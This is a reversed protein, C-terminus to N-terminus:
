TQSHSNNIRQFLLPPLTPLPRTLTYIKIVQVNIHAMRNHWLTLNDADTTSALTTSSAHQIPPDSRIPIVSKISLKYLTGIQIGEMVKPGRGFDKYIACTGDDTQSSYGAKAAIGISFLNRRLEPIYLVKQLTGHKEQGNVTRTIEIDGKGQVWINRDDAVAVSWTGKSIPTFTSFWDRHDTMHETAGSDAFWATKDLNVSLAHSHQHIVAFACSDAGSECSPNSAGSNQDTNPQSQQDSHQDSPPDSNSQETTAVCVESHRNQPDRQQREPKHQRQNVFKHKDQRPHPCEATWHDFEGCNYCRTKSKLEKMYEENQESTHKKCKASTKSSRTFLASDSASEDDQQKMLNELQLCRAKLNAVTQEDAPVNNWGTVIHYKYSAPLTCMIKTIMADETPPHGLEKLLGALSLVKNIHSNITDGPSMKYEYFSNQVMYVNEKSKQQYLSCLTSWMSAVSTCNVLNELIPISVSSSIMRQAITDAKEWAIKEAEPANDGPKPTTGNTILLLAKKKSVYNWISGGSQSSIERSFKLLRLSKRTWKTSHCYVRKRLQKLAAPGYGLSLCISFACTDTRHFLQHFFIKNRGIQYMRRFKANQSDRLRIYSRQQCLWTRGLM